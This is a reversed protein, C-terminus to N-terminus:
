NQYTIVVKGCQGCNFGETVSMCGSIDRGRSIEKVENPAVENIAGCKKCTYRKFVSTDQGVVKPM